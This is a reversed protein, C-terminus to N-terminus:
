EYDKEKDNLIKDTVTNTSKSKHSARQIIAEVKNESELEAIKDKAWQPICDPKIIGLIDQRYWTVDGGTYINKCFVKVGLGEPSCGNGGTAICLQREAGVYERSMVSPDVVIIEHRLDREAISECADRGIVTRDFPIKSIDAKVKQIQEQIRQSYLEVMENYNDGVFCSSYREFLGDFECFGVVYREEPNEAHAKEGLFVEKGGYSFSNLIEYEGIMRKKDSISPSMEEVVRNIENAYGEIFGAQAEESKFGNADLEGIMNQVVCVISKAVPEECQNMLVRLADMKVDTVM